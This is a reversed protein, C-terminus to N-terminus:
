IQEFESTMLVSRPKHHTMGNAQDSRGSERAAQRPACLYSVELVRLVARSRGMRPLTVVRTGAIGQVGGVAVRADSPPRRALEERVKTWDPLPRATPRSPTVGAAPYLRRSLEAEDLEAVLTWSSLNAVKARRLCDAVASKGCGVARALQRCSDVGGLLHLRLVDKIKQMALWPHKGFGALLLPKRHIVKENSCSLPTSIRRLEGLSPEGHAYELRRIDAPM